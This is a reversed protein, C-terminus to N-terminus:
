RDLYLHYQILVLFHGRFVNDFWISIVVSINPRYCAGIDGFLVMESIPTGALEAVIKLLLINFTNTDQNRYIELTSSEQCVM